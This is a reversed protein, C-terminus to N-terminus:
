DGFLAGREHARRIFARFASEQRTTVFPPKEALPPTPPGIDLGSSGVKATLGADSRFAAVGRELDFRSSLDGTFSVTYSWVYPKEDSEEIRIDNVNGVFTRDHSTNSDLRKGISLRTRLGKVSGQSGSFIANVNDRLAWLNAVDNDATINLREEDFAGMYSEGKIEITVPLFYWPQIVPVIVGPLIATAGTSQMSVTNVETLEISVVATAFQAAPTVFSFSELAKTSAETELSLRVRRERFIRNRPLNGSLLAV